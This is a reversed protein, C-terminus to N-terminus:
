PEFFTSAILLMIYKDSSDLTIVFIRCYSKGRPREEAISVTITQM